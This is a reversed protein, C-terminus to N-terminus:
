LKEEEGSNLRQPFYDFSIFKNLKVYMEKFTFPLVPDRGTCKPINLDFFILCVLCTVSIQM